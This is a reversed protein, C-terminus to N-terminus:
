RYWALFSTATSQQLDPLRYAISIPLTPVAGGSPSPTPSPSPSVAGTCTQVFLIPVCPLMVPPLAGPLGPVALAPSARQAGTGTAPLKVGNCALLGCPDVGQANQRLFFNGPTGDVDSQSTAAGIEYILNIAAQAPTCPDTYPGGRCDSPPEAGAPVGNFSATEPVLTRLLGDLRTTFTSLRSLGEELRSAYGGGLVADTARDLADTNQIFGELPSGEQASLAATVSNLNDVTGALDESARDLAGSTVDLDILIRNLQPDRTALEATPVRSHVSLDSLSPALQQLTGEENDVAGGATRLFSTLSSRTQSDFTDLVQDFDVVPRTRALAIVGSEALVTPSRGPSLQIYKQGLLTALRVGARTDSPLPWDSDDVHFTVEAMGHVASVGVVQGVARGGIRVDSGVAISDADSLRATLTHTAAWPAGYEVNIGAMLGIVATILVGTVFGAVLPNVRLDRGLVTM